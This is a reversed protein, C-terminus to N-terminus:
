KRKIKVLKPMRSLLAHPSWTMVRILELIKRNKNNHILSRDQMVMPIGLFGDALGKIYSVHSNYKVYSFFLFLSALIHFPTMLLLLPLPMNKVFTWLRNRTGHYVAFGSVRGSSGYGVHSVVANTVQVSIEGQLRARFGFDVDECYCFFREDFGGLDLFLRREVMMAAACASFAEGESPLYRVSLGYGGRFPLGFVHYADGAGDLVDVKGFSLQTSGFIRVEPHRLSAELLRELWDPEAFADPNLLAIWKTDARRAAQNNAGAFGLNTENEIFNVWPPMDAPTVRTGEPSGNEVVIVRAPRMTQRSLSDLCRPLWERSTYAVIIVTVDAVPTASSTV